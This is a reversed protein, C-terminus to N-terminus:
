AGERRYRIAAVCTAATKSKGIDLPIPKKFELLQILANSPLGRHGRGSPFGEVYVPTSHLYVFDVLISFDIASDPLSLSASLRRCTNEVLEKKWPSQYYLENIELLVAYLLMKSLRRTDIKREKLLGFHHLWTLAMRRSIADKTPILSDDVGHEYTRPDALVKQIVPEFVSSRLILWFLVAEVLDYRNAELASYLRVGLQSLYYMKTGEIRSLNLDKLTMTGFLPIDLDSENARRECIASIGELFYKYELEDPDSIGVEKKWRNILEKKSPTISGSDVRKRLRRDSIELLPLAYVNLLRTWTVVKSLQIRPYTRSDSGGERM